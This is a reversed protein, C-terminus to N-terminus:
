VLEKNVQNNIMQKTMSSAPKSMQEAGPMQGTQTQEPKHILTDVDEPYYFQTVKKAGEYIDYTPNMMMMQNYELALAKQIEKNKVASMQVDVKCDYEIEMYKDPNIQYITKFGKANAEDALAVEAKLKEEPSAFNNDALRILTSSNKSKSHLLLSSKWAVNNTVKDIDKALEFQFIDDMTLLSIDRVFKELNKVFTGMAVIDANQQAIVSQRATTTKDIIGGRQADSNSAESAMGDLYSLMDFAAKLNVSNPPLVPEVKFNDNNGANIVSGPAFAKATMNESGYAILSPSVAQRTMDYLVSNLMSALREDSWLKQALTRGVITERGFNEFVLTAYPYPRHKKKGLRKIKQDPDSIMVGNVVVLEIDLAKNYYTRRRVLNRLAQGDHRYLFMQSNADFYVDAGPKVYKWNETDKYIADLEWFDVLEDDILFRQNQINSEYFNAFKFTTMDVIKVRHREGDFYKKVVVFPMYCVSTISRVMKDVYEVDELVIDSLAQIVNGELHAVENADNRAFWFPYVMNAVTHAIMVQSKNMIYPKHLYSQWAAEPDTTAHTQTFGIFSRYFDYFAMQLTRNDLELFPTNLNTNGTEIDYSMLVLRDRELGKPQYSAINKPLGRSDRPNEETGFEFKNRTSTTQNNQNVNQLSDM